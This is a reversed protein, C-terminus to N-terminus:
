GLSEDLDVVGHWLQGDFVNHTAARASDVVVCRTWLFACPQRSPSKILESVSVACIKRM